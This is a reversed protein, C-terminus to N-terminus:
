EPQSIVKDFLTKLRERTRELIPLSQANMTGGFLTHALDQRARELDDFDVLPTEPNDTYDKILEDIKSNLRAEKEALETESWEKAHLNDLYEQNAGTESM